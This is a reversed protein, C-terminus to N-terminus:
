AEALAVAERARQRSHLLYSLPFTAAGMAVMILVTALVAAWSPVGPGAQGASFIAAAVQGGVVGGISRVVYVVGSVSAVRESPVVTVITNLSQTFGFGVGLGILAASLYPTWPAGDVFLLTLGGATLGAAGLFMVGRRGLLPELKHACPGAVAVCLAYPLLVLGVVSADGGMGYGTSVPLLALVPLLLYMCFTAFSAVFNISMVGFVEREVIGRLDVLPSDHRREFAVFAAFLAITLAFMGLVLSSGWGHTAPFTLGLLLAVLAGGLLLAGIWDVRGVVVPPCSPLVRLGFLVVVAIVVTPIWYIYSYDLHEVIPGVAVYAAAAGLGSSVVFMSNAIRARDLPQSDRMIGISVPIVAIGIGQLMQGAILVAASTATAAIVAGIGSLVLVALFVKKKDMLDALRSSVPLSVATVVLFGTLMWAARSPSVDLTQQVIPVIPAVMMEMTLYSFVGLVAVVLTAWSGHKAGDEAPGSVSPPGVQQDTSTPSVQSSM